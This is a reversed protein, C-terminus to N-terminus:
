LRQTSSHVKYELRKISAQLDKERDKLDNEKRQGDKKQDQLGNRKAELERKASPFDQCKLQLQKVEAKKLELDQMLTM